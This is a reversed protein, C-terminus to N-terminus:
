WVDLHKCGKAALQAILENSKCMAPTWHVQGPVAHDPHLKLSFDSLFKGPGHAGAQPTGTEKFYFLVPLSASPFFGYNVFDKYAWRNTGGVVVNQGYKELTKASIGWAAIPQKMVMFTDRGLVFRVRGAQLAFIVGLATCLFGAGFVFGNGEAAFNAGMLLPGALLFVLGLSYDEHIVIADSGKLHHYAGKGGDISARTGKATTSMSVTSSLTRPGPRLLGSAPAFTAALLLCLAAGATPM